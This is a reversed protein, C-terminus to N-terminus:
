TPSTYTHIHLYLPSLCTNYMSYTTSSYRGPGTRPRSPRGEFEQWWAILQLSSWFCCPPPPQAVDDKKVESRTLHIDACRFCSSLVLVWRKSSPKTSRAEQEESRGQPWPCCNCAASGLSSLANAWARGPQVGLGSSEALISGPSMMITGPSRRCLPKSTSRGPPLLLPEREIECCCRSNPDSSARIIIRICLRRVGAPWGGRAIFPGGCGGLREISRDFAAAAAPARTGARVPGDFRRVAPIPTM